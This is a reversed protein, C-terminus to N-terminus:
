TESFVSQDFCLWAQRSVPLEGVRGEQFSFRRVKGGLEEIRTDPHIRLGMGAPIGYGIEGVMHRLRLIIKLEEWGEDEDHMDCILPVIGLCDFPEATADDDPDRWRVWQQALLISGASLGALVAGAQFREHILEILRRERLIKMGLEVDGGSFFLIDSTEILRRAAPLPSKPAALPVLEVTGAGHQELISKITKFFQANDGSAAGIYAVSPKPHGAEQLMESILPDHSERRRFPGGALLFVSKIGKVGM